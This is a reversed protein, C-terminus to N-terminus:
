RYRKFVGCPQWCCRFVSPHPYSLGHTQDLWQPDNLEWGPGLSWGVPCWVDAGPSGFWDMTTDQFLRHRLKSTFKYGPTFRGGPQATFYGRDKGGANDEPRLVGATLAPPNSSGTQWCPFHTAWGPGGSLQFSWSSRWGRCFYSRTLRAQAVNTQLKARISDTRNETLMSPGSVVGSCWSLLVGEELEKDWRILDVSVGLYVCSSRARGCAEPERQLGKLCSENGKSQSSCETSGSNVFSVYIPNLCINLREQDKM